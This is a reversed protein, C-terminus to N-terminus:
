GIDRGRQAPGPPFLLSFTDPINVSPNGTESEYSISKNLEKDIEECGHPKTGDLYKVCRANGSQWGGLSVIPDDNEM